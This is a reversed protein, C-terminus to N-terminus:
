VIKLVAAAREGADSASQCIAINGPAYGKTAAAFVMALMVGGSAAGTDGIFEAPHWIPFSEKHVRLLRAVTTAIERFYYQEGTLDSLRFDVEGFEIGSERLATNTAEVMGDALNPESSSITSSERAFGLGDITINTKLASNATTRLELIVGCEGPIVGDQNDVLKLRHNRHLWSICDVNILSDVGAVICRNAGNKLLRRAAKLAFFVSARGKSIIKSHRHDFSYGLEKELAYLLNSEFLSNYDPRSKDTIGIIIPLYQNDAASFGKIWEKCTRFLLAVIRNYGTGGVSQIWSGIIPQTLPNAIPLEEFGSIGARMAALSSKSDSGVPSIMAISQIYL